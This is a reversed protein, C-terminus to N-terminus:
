EPIDDFLEKIFIEQLDQAAKTFNENIVRYKYFSNLQEAALEAKAIELRKNIDGEHDRGRSILREKLASEEPPQIWILVAQAFFDAIQRAGHRDVVAILSKGEALIRDIHKPSGYYAGYVTSWEIFFGEAIKQEFEQPSVFHYDIGHQEQASPEKTTYTVLRELAYRDGLREVIVKVLSTKGAGSPASIVFLRGAM